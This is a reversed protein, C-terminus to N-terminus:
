AYEGYHYLPSVVAPGGTMELDIAMGQVESRITQYTTEWDDKSDNRYVSAAYVLGAYVALDPASMSLENEATLSTFPTFQGYYLLNITPAWSVAPNPGQLTGALFIQAQFRAYCWPQDTPDVRILERYSTKRLAKPVGQPDPVIVDIIEILDSPVTIWKVPGTPTIVQQREMSPLRCERQVRGIGQLVFAQAQTASCDDRNLISQFTNIMDQLAM